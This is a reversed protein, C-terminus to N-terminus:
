RSAIRRNASNSPSLKGALMDLDFRALAGVGQVQPRPQARREFLRALELAWNDDGFEVPEAAVHREDRAQDCMTDREHHGLEPESMSGNMKCM